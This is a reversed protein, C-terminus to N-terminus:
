YIWDFIQTKLTGYEIALICDGKEKIMEDFYQKAKEYLISDGYCRKVLHFSYNGDKNHQFFIITAPIFDLNIKM